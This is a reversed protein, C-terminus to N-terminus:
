IGLYYKKKLHFMFFLHLVFTKKKTLITVNFFIYKFLLETAEVYLCFAIDAFTINDM